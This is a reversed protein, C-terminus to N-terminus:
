RGAGPAECHREQWRVVAEASIDKLQGSISLVRRNVTEAVQPSGPIPRSSVSALIVALDNNIRDQLM